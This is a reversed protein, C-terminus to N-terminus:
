EISFKAELGSVPRHNRLMSAQANGITVDVRQVDAAAM